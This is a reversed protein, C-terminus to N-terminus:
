NEVDVPEAVSIVSSLPIEIQNALLYASGNKYNVGTVKGSTYTSVQIAQNEADVALVEFNYLGDSVRSGNQDLGDWDVSQEGATMRGGDITRLYNGAADYVAIQVTAADANLDFNISNASGNRVEFESGSTIVTKGIFSVAQANNSSTQAASLNNLNSNVNQLQELSSFQALQATFGTSDMPNMPDQHQLQAVLLKLFEDKGMVNKSGVLSQQEAGSQVSTAGGITM